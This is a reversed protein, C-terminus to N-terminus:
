ALGLHEFFLFQRENDKFYFLYVLILGLNGKILTVKHSM